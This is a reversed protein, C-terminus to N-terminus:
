FENPESDLYANPAYGKELLIGETLFYATLPSLLPTIWCFLNFKLMYRSIHGGFVQCFYRNDSIM